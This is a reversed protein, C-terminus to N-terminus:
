VKKKMTHTIKYLKFNNGRDAILTVKRISIKYGAFNSSMLSLFKRKVEAVCSGYLESDTITLKTNPKYKSRYYTVTHKFKLKGNERYDITERNPLHEKGLNGREWENSVRDYFKYASARNKFTKTYKRVQM